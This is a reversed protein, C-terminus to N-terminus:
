ADHVYSDRLALVGAAALDSLLRLGWDAMSRDPRGLRQWVRQALPTAEWWALLDAISQQREELLHYKLLVKAGHRAHKAPDARFSALRSRARQLADAVDSFPAGHGPIVVRPRLREISDLVAAVDDFAHEGDLEPFVVGFGNAWLADASILVGDQADFLILSHPDHGPAAHATWTRTGVRLSEGPRLLADHVFRECRQGTDRYSLADEDWRAVADADGPPISLRAGFTRQLAANGGCHDSHLHTNVIAALMEGPRLAHRVLALTQEAHLCHSSDILTAGEGDRGHLLVNNSSLWGREFVTVGDLAPAAVQAAAEAAV